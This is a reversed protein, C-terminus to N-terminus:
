EATIVGKAEDEQFEDVFEYKGKDLAKVKVTVTSKGPAVKEIQLDASELEAPSANDNTFEIVFAEGATVTIEAPTFTKDKLLLKVTKADEATAFSFSLGLAILGAAATCFAKSM